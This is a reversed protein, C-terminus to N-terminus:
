STVPIDCPQLTYSQNSSLWDDFVFGDYIIQRIQEEPDSSIYLILFYINKRSKNVYYVEKWLDQLQNPHHFIVVSRDTWICTDM